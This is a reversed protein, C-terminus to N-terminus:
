APMQTKQSPGVARRGQWHVDTSVLFVLYHILYDSRRACHSSSSAARQLAQALEPEDQGAMPVLAVRTAGALPGSASALLALTADWNEPDAADLRALLPGPLAAQLEETAFVRGSRREAMLAAGSGLQITATDSISLTGVTESFTAADLTANSISVGTTDPLVGAAGLALTGATISTQGTYSNALTLITTKQM